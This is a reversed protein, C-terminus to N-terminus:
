AINPLEKTLVRLVYKVWPEGSAPGYLAPVSARLWEEPDQGHKRGETRIPKDGVAQRITEPQAQWFLRVAEKLEGNARAALLRALHDAGKNSWRAGHRKMRRAIHHFVQGEIAGLRETAKTQCIGEWNNKLYHRLKIIRRREVGKSKREAASLAKDVEAWDGKILAESVEKYAAENHGLGELLARRLHYPDLRYTVRPFYELGQKIWSAGDGGVYYEEVASLDWRRGLQTIVEEWFVKGETVGAVVQREQLSRRNQGVKVKGEYGVGIKIAIKRRGKGNDRGAVWVEDAEVRLERSQRRGKPLEGRDFVAQREEEAQELLKKGAEQAEEWITMARIDVAGLTLERLLIAAKHYPMEAAVHVAIETTWPSLRQRPALGLAEDLLYRGEGTKLDRYYRRKFMVEGFPTIIERTKTHILKLREKDRSKMLEEDLYNCATLLLKLTITQVLRYIRKELEAFDQCTTLIQHMEKIVLLIIEVVNRIKLM